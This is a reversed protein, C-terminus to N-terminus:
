SSCMARVYWVNLGHKGTLGRAKLVELREQKNLLVAAANEWKQHSIKAFRYSMAQLERGKGKNKFSSPWRPSYRRKEDVAVRETYTRSLLNTFPRERTEYITDIVFPKSGEVRKGQLVSYATHKGNGEWDEAHWVYDLENILAEFQESTVRAPLEGVLTAGPTEAFSGTYGGHGRDWARQESLAQFAQRLTKGIALGEDIDAGM